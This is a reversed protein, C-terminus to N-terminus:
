EKPTNDIKDGVGLGIVVESATPDFESIPIFINQTSNVSQGADEQHYSIMNDSSTGIRYDFKYRNIPDINRGRSSIHYGFIDNNKQVKLNYKATATETKVWHESYYRNNAGIRELMNFVSEGGSSPTYGSEGELTKIPTKTKLVGYFTDDGTAIYLHDVHRNSSGYLRVIDLIDNFSHNITHVHDNNLRIKVYGDVGNKIQIEFNIWTTAAVAIESQFVTYEADFIKIVIESRSKVYAGLVQVDSTSNRLSFFPYTMDPYQFLPAIFGFTIFDNTIQPVPRQIHSGNNHFYFCRTGKEYLDNEVTHSSDSTQGHHSWGNVAKYYSTYEFSDYFVISM